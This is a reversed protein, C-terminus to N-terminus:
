NGLIINYVLGYLAFALFIFAGAIEIWKSNCLKEAFLGLCIALAVCLVHALGGGILIGEIGYTASLAIAAIQSKDGLEAFFLMM